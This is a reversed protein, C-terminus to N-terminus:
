RREGPSSWTKVICDDLELDPTCYGLRSKRCFRNAEGWSKQYVIVGLLAPILAEKERAEDVHRLMLVDVLSGCLGTVVVSFGRSVSM